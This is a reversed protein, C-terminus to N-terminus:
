SSLWTDHFQLRSSAEFVPGHVKSSLALVQTLKFVPITYAHDIVTQQVEEVIKARTASDGTAAQQDLLTDLEGPAIHSRNSYKTSFITRLIDPDARTLNYWLFDYNGSAQLQTSEGATVLKLRLDVGIKKLQQQILELATQSPNFASAFIVNLSLTTGNKIRIGEPGPVWGASDLLKTAGAADYGLTGSVNTYDPTSTALISTAAKYNPTLVTDVVEQRDIGKLIAQRM